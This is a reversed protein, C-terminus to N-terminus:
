STYLPKNIFGKKSRPKNPRRKHYRAEKKKDRKTQNKKKKIKFIENM